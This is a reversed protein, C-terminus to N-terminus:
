FISIKGQMPAAGRGSKSLFCWLSYFCIRRAQRPCTCLKYNIWSNVAGTATYVKGCVCWKSRSVELDLVIVALSTKCNCGDGDTDPRGYHPLGRILPNIMTQNVHNHCAREAKNGKAMDSPSNDAVPYPDEPKSTLSQRCM